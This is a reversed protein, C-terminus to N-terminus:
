HQERFIQTIEKLILVLGSINVITDQNVLNWALKPSISEPNKRLLWVLTADHTYTHKPNTTYLDKHYVGLADWSRIFNYGKLPLYKEMGYPLIRVVFSGKRLFNANFLGSGDVGILIDCKSASEIQETLNLKESFIEEVVAEKLTNRVSKLVDEANLIFRHNSRRVLLIRLPQRPGTAHQVGLNQMIFNRFWNWGNFDSLSYMDM